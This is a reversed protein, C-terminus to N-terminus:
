VVGDLVRGVGRPPRCSLMGADAARAVAPDVAVTAVVPVGAAAAIDDPRLARGPEDVVIVGTCRRQNDVLRRLALYCPRTVLFSHTSAELFRDALADRPSSVGLCGVDVVVCSPHDVARGVAGGDEGGTPWPATGRWVLGLGPEVPVALRGVPDPAADAYSLADTIGPTDLEPLGFVHPQDGDLDVLVVGDPDTRARRRALIAATVSCGAGGKLSWLAILM